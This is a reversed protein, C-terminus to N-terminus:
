IQSNVVQMIGQQLNNMYGSECIIILILIVIFIIIRRKLKVKDANEEQLEDIIKGFCPLILCGNLGTFLTIMMIKITKEIDKNIYSIGTKSFQFLIFTLVLVFITGIILYKVKKTKELYGLNYWTWAIFVLYLIIIAIIILPM